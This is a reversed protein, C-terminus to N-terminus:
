KLINKIKHVYDNYENDGPETNLIDIECNPCILNGKIIIGNDSVNGCIGCVNEKIKKNFLTKM